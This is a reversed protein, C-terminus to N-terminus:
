PSWGIAIAGAIALVIFVAVVIALIGITQTYWAKDSM